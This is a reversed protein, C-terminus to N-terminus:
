AACLMERRNKRPRKNTRTRLTYVLENHFISSPLMRSIVSWIIVPVDAKIAAMVTTASYTWTGVYIILVHIGERRLKEGQGTMQAPTRAITGCDKVEFGQSKLTDRARPLYSKVREVFSDPWTEDLSMTVILGVKTTKDKYFM